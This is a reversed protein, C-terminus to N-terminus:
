VPCDVDPTNPTDDDTVQNPQDSTISILFDATSGFQGLMTVMQYKNLYLDVSPMSKDPYEVTAIVPIGGGRANMIKITDGPKLVRGLQRRQNVFVKGFGPRDGICAPSSGRAVRGVLQFPAALMEARNRADELATLNKRKESASQWTLQKAQAEWDKLLGPNEATYYGARAAGLRFVRATEKDGEAVYFIIQEVEAPDSVMLGVLSAKLKTSGFLPNLFAVQVLITLVIVALITRSINQKLLKPLEELVFKVVISLYDPM